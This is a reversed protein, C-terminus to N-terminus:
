ECEDFKYPSKKLLEFDDDNKFNKNEINKKYWQDINGALDM